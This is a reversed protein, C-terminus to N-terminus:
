FNVDAVARRQGAKGSAGIHQRAGGGGGQRHLRHIDVGEVEREAPDAIAVEHTSDPFAPEPSRKGGVLLVLEVSIQRLLDPGARARDLIPQVDLHGRAQRQPFHQLVLRGPDIREAGGDRPLVTVIVGCGRLPEHQGVEAQGGPRADVAHLDRHAAKGIGIRAFPDRKGQDGAGIGNQARRHRIGFPEGTEGGTQHPPLPRGGGRQQQRLLSGIQGKQWQGVRGEVEGVPPHLAIGGRRGDVGKQGGVTAGVAHALRDMGRGQGPIGRTRRQGAQRQGRDQATGVADFVAAHLAGIRRRATMDKGQREPRIHGAPRPPQIDQRVHIGGRQGGLRHQHLIEQGLADIECHGQRIRRKRKAIGRRQRDVHAVEKTRRARVKLDRAVHAQAWRTGQRAPLSVQESPVIGREVRLGAGDPIRDGVLAPLGRKRQLQGPDVFVGALRQLGFHDQAHGFPRSTRHFPALRHLDSGIGRQDPDLGQEVVYQRLTGLGGELHDGHVRPPLGCRHLDAPREVADVGM